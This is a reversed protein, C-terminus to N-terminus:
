SGHAIYREILDRQQQPRGKVFRALGQYNKEKILYNIAAITSAALRSTDKAKSAPREQRQADAEACAAALTPSLGDTVPPNRRARAIAAALVAQRFILIGKWDCGTCAKEARWWARRAAWKAAVEPCAPVWESQCTQAGRRLIHVTM